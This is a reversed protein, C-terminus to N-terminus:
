RENELEQLAEVFRGDKILSIVKERQQKLELIKYYAKKSYTECEHGRYQNECRGNLPCGYCFEFTNQASIYQRRLENLEEDSYLKIFDVM